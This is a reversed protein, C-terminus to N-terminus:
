KTLAAIIEARAAAYDAPDLSYLKEPPTHDVDAFDALNEARIVRAFAWDLAEAIATDGAAQERAMTILEFDQIGALLMETRLTRVPRGDYGPYVFFMDGTHWQPFRFGPR